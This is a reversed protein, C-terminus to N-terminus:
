RRRRRRGLLGAAALGIVSLSAPEPVATVGALGGASGSTPFPAGQAAYNFDITSYDDGSVIGDYNFDGNVWGDAGTGANFDITSYDDGSIFGDLNADGAYTYMAITTAGNITQGAFLDTDTPGLGRIQEGTAVGISTLGTAADPMSTTLGPSDWAGGNNARQVDGQVGSYVGNIDANGAATTTFLKNNKLDVKSTETISLTGTSVVKNASGDDTVEIVGTGSAELSSSGIQSTLLNLKGASAALKGSFSSTGSIAMTGNGLKTMGGTGSFNGSFTFGTSAAIDFTNDGTFTIPSQVTSTATQNSDSVNAGNLAIARSVTGSLLQFQATTGPAFSLLGNGTVNSSTEVRLTGAEVNINGDTVDSRVIMFPGAGKKTLTNGNLNLNGRVADTGRIDIRGNTNITADATLNIKEFANQQNVTGSNLIAGNGGTGSGAINFVKNTGFDLASTGAVGAIDIAGTGSINVASAGATIPGFSNNNTVVVTGATIDTSGTYTNTASLTTTGAGTHQVSGAGSIVGGITLADGSAPSLELVGGNSIGGYTGLGGGVTSNNGIQVKGGTIAVPGIVNGGSNAITLTQSGGKTIAPAGAISGTGSFTYATSSNTVAISGPSVTATINVTGNATSDDFTVNDASSYTALDEQYTTPTGANILQWNNASSTNWTQDGNGTWKPADFSTVHLDVSGNTTNDVLNAAMRPPLKALSFSGYGAGAITGYDILVYDAGVTVGGSLGPTLVNSGNATLAAINAGAAAGINVQLKANNLTFNDIANTTGIHAAKLTGDTVTITSVGAGDIIDGAVRVSATSGAGGINLIGNPIGTTTAAVTNKALTLNNNVILQGAGKIELTGTSTGKGAVNGAEGVTVDNVNITGAAYTLRGTGRGQTASGPNANGRAINLTGLLMDISGAGRSIGGDSTFDLVSAPSSATVESAQAQALDLNARGTGAQNRLVFTGNTVGAAFNANGSAKRVAFQLLNTNLTTANGLTLQSAAGTSASSFGVTTTAATITSANSLILTGAARNFNTSSGEGNGIRFNSVTANFAGLGSLDLTARGTFGVTNSSGQRIDASASANNLTLTGAGTFTTTVVYANAANVQQGVHLIGSAPNGNLTLTVGADIQTTHFKPDGALDSQQNYVLGALTFNSNVVNTVTGQTGAAGVNGFVVNDAALPATGGSWSPGDSWNAPPTANNWTVTAAGATAAISAVAAAAIAALVSPNGRNRKM